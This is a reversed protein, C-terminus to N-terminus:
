NKTLHVNYPTQTFGLVSGNAKNGEVNLDFHGVGVPGFPAVSCGQATCNCINATACLDLKACNIPVLQQTQPNTQACSSGLMLGTGWNPVCNYSGNQVEIPTQLECWHTWVESLAVDFRLRAAEVSGARATFEFGTVPGRTTISQSNPYGGQPSYEYETPYGLDPDTAPAILPSNGFKIQSTSSGDSSLVLVITDSGDPFKYNEVYGTWTGSLEAPVTLPGASSSGAGGTGVNYGGAGVPTSGAIGANYGGAGVPTSGANSSEGAGLGAVGPSGASPGGGIPNVSQGSCAVLAVVGCGLSGWFKKNTM